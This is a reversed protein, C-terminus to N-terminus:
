GIAPFAVRRSNRPPRGMRGGGVAVSFFMSSSAAATSRHRPVSSESLEAAITGGAWERGGCLLVNLEFGSLNDSPASHREGCIERRDDWGCM